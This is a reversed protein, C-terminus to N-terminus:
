TVTAFCPQLGGGGVHGEDPMTLDPGIVTLPAVALTVKVTAAPQWFM